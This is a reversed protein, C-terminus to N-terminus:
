NKPLLHANFEAFVGEITEPIEDVLLKAIFDARQTLRVIIKEWQAETLHAM